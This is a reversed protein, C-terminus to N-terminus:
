HPTRNTRYERIFSLPSRRALIRAARSVMTYCVIRNDRDAGHSADGRHRRSTLFPTYKGAPGPIYEFDRRRRRGSIFVRRHPLASESMQFPLFFFSLSNPLLNFPPRLVHRSAIPLVCTQCIAPFSSFSSFLIFVRKLVHHRKEVSFQSNFSCAAVRGSFHYIIYATGHLM